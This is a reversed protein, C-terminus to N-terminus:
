AVPDLQLWSGARLITPTANATNQAWQVRLSGTSSSTTILLGSVHLCFITAVSGYAVTGTPSATQNYQAAWEVELDAAVAPPWNAHPGVASWHLTSATPFTFQMKFDANNVACSQMLMGRLTYVRSPAPTLVLHDDDQPATSNVVQEDALKRVFLPKLGNFDVDTAVQGALLGM